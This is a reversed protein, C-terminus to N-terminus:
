MSYNVSFLNCRTNQNRAFGNLVSDFRMCEMKGINTKELTSSSNAM